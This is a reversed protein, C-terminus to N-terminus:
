KTRRPMGHMLHIIERVILAESHLWPPPHGSGVELFASRRLRCSFTDRPSYTQPRPVLRLSTLPALRRFGDVTDPRM